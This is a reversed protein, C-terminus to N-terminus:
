YQGGLKPNQSFSVFLQSINSLSRSLMSSVFVHLLGKSMGSSGVAFGKAQAIEKQAFEWTIEAPLSSDSTKTNSPNIFVYMHNSGVLFSVPYTSPLDLWEWQVPKRLRGTRKECAHVEIM